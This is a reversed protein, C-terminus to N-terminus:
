RHRHIQKNFKEMQRGRRERLVINVIDKRGIENWKRM